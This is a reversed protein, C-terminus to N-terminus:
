KLEFGAELVDRSNGGVFVTFAGNELVKNGDADYFSLADSRLTFSVVRSEGKKLYIKQYGKLEKVPRIISAAHDRIYLQVVEEGDFEGTNAVTVSVQLPQTRGIVNSSLKLGEYKFSTYSLGFGFPYLPERPIDRYRSFWNGKGDTEVPRGTQFHNYYVPIQGVAYPFSVVTKASPNVKGSIINALANGSETGLIWGYVIADTYEEIATLVLPRGATVVAVVPKGTAKLAKLLQVQGEPIVPAALSRDEGALKGSLGINVIVIEAERAQAVAEDILANTSSGDALYGPTFSIRNGPWVTELGQKLTVANAADGQAIWFDFADDASNAYHGILAIRAPTKQVPLVHNNNKLLIVAGQAAELAQQRNEPTFMTNKERAEDSFKYPSEFLGLKFKAALVAGVAQDLEAVTIKGKKVLAPIYEIMLKSEMDIMSGAKLAKLAAEERDGAYGWNVMEGFSNWDSVLFGNFGWKKKLVDTVLYKSASVPIGEFTNFGNMVSAAGAKVAAEYPPLYKNWLSVRSMDTYNYERGSEVAGYAAFHKVCALIHKEDGNGQLGKVRAASILGGYWPDEGIGEMVRGWRADNSIDCMPAFTWHIGAAAAERAAVASNKQVQDLDWSCAEALPIPFITKFGHIVDYGFLLPIGLRSEKVAIEQIAKTEAAGIVNLMSGIKGERVMQMKAQQGADNLAPGTFAGGTLQNLQGAKEEVTMKGLLDKVRTAVPLSANKYMAQSTTKTQSYAFSTLLMTLLWLQIKRFM